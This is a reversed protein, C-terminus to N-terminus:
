HVGSGPQRPVAAYRKRRPQGHELRQGENQTPDNGAPVQGEDRVLAHAVREAVAGAAAHDHPECVPAELALESEVGLKRDALGRAFMM